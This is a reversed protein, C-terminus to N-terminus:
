LLDPIWLVRSVNNFDGTQTKFNIFDCVDLHWPEISVSLNGVRGGHGKRIYSVCADFVHVLPVLGASTIGNM